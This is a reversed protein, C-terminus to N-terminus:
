RQKGMERGREFVIAGYSQSVVGAALVKPLASGFLGAMYRGGLQRSPDVVVGPVIPPSFYQSVLMIELDPSLVHFGDHFESALDSIEALTELTSRLGVASPTQRLSTIPLASTDACVILGTGAFSPGARAQVGRLLEFLNERLVLGV